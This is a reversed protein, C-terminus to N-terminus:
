DYDDHGWGSEEKDEPATSVHEGTSQEHGSTASSEDDNWSVKVQNFRTKLAATNALAQKV